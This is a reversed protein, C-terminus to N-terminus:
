VMEASSEPWMLFKLIGARNKRNLILKPMVVTPADFYLFFGLTSNKLLYKRILDDLIYIYAGVHSFSEWPSRIIQSFSHM